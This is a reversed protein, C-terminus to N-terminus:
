PRRVWLFGAALIVALWLVQLLVFWRLLRRGAPTYNRPNLVNLQAVSSAGEAPSQGPRIDTRHDQLRTFVVLATIVILFAAVGVMATIM